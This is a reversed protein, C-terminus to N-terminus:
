NAAQAAGGRLHNSIVSDSRNFLLAKPDHRKRILRIYQFLRAVPKNMIQEDDWGFEHAITEVLAACSATYLKGGGGSSPADQFAAELYGTIDKIAQMYKLSGLGAAFKKMKKQDPAYEDSVVWLFQAIQEPSPAAGGTVFPNGCNGLIILHKLSFQRVLVGCLPMPFNLFALDRNAQEAERAEAYGPIQNPDFLNM